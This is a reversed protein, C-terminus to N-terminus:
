SDASTKIKSLEEKLRGAMREPDSEHEKLIAKLRQFMSDLASLTQNFRAALIKGEDSKRLNVRIGVNGKELEELIKQYRYLPGAIKHSIFISGWAIFLLILLFKPFIKRHVEDLINRFAERQHLSLKETENFFSLSELDRLGPRQRAEEYQTLRSATVLDNRLQHDSFVELVSGWIGLYLGILTLLTILLLPLSIYAMFRLQFPRNIIIQKRRNKGM